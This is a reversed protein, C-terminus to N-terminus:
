GGGAKGEVEDRWPFAILAVLWHHRPERHDLALRGHDPKAVRHSTQRNPPRFSPVDFFSISLPTNAKPPRVKFLFVVILYYDAAAAPPIDFLLRPRHPARPSVSDCRNPPPSEFSSFFVLNYYMRAKSLRRDITKCGVVLWFLAPTDLPPISLHRSWRPAPPPTYTM